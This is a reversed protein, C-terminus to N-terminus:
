LFVKRRVPRRVQALCDIETQVISDHDSIGPVPLLRHVLNPRNTFLIDLTNDLRTPFNVIQNMDLSHLLDLFSKNIDSRYRHGSASKDLWSIDPLNFDGGCWIAHGPFSDHLDKINACLKNM